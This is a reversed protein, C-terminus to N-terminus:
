HYVSAQGIHPNKDNSIINLLIKGNRIVVPNLPLYVKPQEPGDKALAPGM